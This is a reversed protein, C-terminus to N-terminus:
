IPFLYIYRDTTDGECRVRLRRDATEGCTATDFPIASDEAGSAAELWLFYGQANVGTYAFLADFGFGGSDILEIGWGAAVALQEIKIGALTHESEMQIHIGYDPYATGGGGQYIYIGATRGANDVLIGNMAVYMGCISGTTITSTATQGISCDIAKIRDALTLAFGPNDLTASFMGGVVMNAITAQPTSMVLDTRGRIAYMDQSDAQVTVRSYILGQIGGAPVDEEAYAHIFLGSIYDTLIGVNFVVQKVNSGETGWEIPNTTNGQVHDIGKDDVNAVMVPDFHVKVAIVGAGGGTLSGLAYGFPVQVASNSRKSIEADGLGDLTAIGTLAGARIYLRDGIEIDSNGDDDDAYVNMNWIGETDVAILDAAAAGSKFAVGVAIGYTGPAGADCLIVPDGTDVFADAHVPHILEDDRVTIHRGEYTSSVETGATLAGPYVGAQTGPM